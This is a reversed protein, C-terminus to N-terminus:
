NIVSIGTIGLTGESDIHFTVSPAAPDMGMIVNSQVPSLSATDFETLTRILSDTFIREQLAFLDERSKIIRGEHESSFAVYCPYSMLRDLLDPNEFAFATKIQDAFASLEDNIITISCLADNVYLLKVLSGECIQYSAAPSERGGASATVPIDKPFTVTENVGSGEFVTSASASRFPSQGAAEMGGPEMIFAHDGEMSKVRGYRIGSEVASGSNQVTLSSDTQNETHSPLQATCAAAVASILLSGTICILFPKIM